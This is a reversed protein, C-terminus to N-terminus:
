VAAGHGGGIDMDLTKDLFVQRRADLIQAEDALFAEVGRLPQVGACHGEQVRDIPCLIETRAELLPAGGEAQPAVPLVKSAQQQQGFETFPKQSAVLDLM